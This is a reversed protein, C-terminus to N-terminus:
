TRPPSRCCRAQRRPVPDRGSRLGPRVPRRRGPRVARQRGPLQGAPRQLPAPQAPEAVDGGPRPHAPHAHGPVLVRDRGCDSGRGRVLGPQHGRLADGAARRLVDGLHRRGLAPRPHGHGAGLHGTRPRLAQLAPDDGGPDKAGRGGAASPHRAPLQGPLHGTRDQRVGPAPVRVPRPDPRGSLRRQGGCRGGAPPAPDDSRALRRRDCLPLARTQPLRSLRRDHGRVPGPRARVM